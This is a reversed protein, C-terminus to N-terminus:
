FLKPSFNNSVGLLVSRVDAITKEYIKRQVDVVTFCYTMIDDTTSCILHITEIYFCSQGKM